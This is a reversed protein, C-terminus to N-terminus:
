IRKMKNEEEIIFAIICYVVIAMASIKLVAISDGLYAKIKEESSVYNWSLGRFFNIMYDFLCFRLLPYGIGIYMIQKWNHEFKAVVILLLIISSLQVIQYIHNSTGPSLLEAEWRAQFVIQVTFLIFIIFSRM